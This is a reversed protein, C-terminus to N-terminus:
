KPKPARGSLLREACADCIPIEAAYHEALGNCYACPEPPIPRARRLLLLTLLAWLLLLGLMPLLNSM